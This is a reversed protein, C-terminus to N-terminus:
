VPPQAQVERQSGRRCTAGAREGPLSASVRKPARAAARGSCRSRAGAMLAPYRGRGHVDRGGVCPAKEDCAVHERGRARELGARVPCELDEPAPPRDLEVRERDGAAVVIEDQVRANGVVVRRPALEEVFPALDELRVVLPEREHQRALVRPEPARQAQVRRADEGLVGLRGLLHELPDTQVPRERCEVELSFATRQDVPKSHRRVDHARHELRVGDGAHEPERAAVAVAPVVIKELSQEGRVDERALDREFLLEAVLEQRPKAGVPEEADAALPSM